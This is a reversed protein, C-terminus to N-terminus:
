PKIGEVRFDRWGCGHLQGEGVHVVKFGIAAVEKACVPGTWGSKHQMLEGYEPNVRNRYPYFAEILWDINDKGERGEQYWRFCGLVCPGEVIIKGGTRLLQFQWRLFDRADELFFHEIVHSSMIEAFYDHPLLEVINEIMMVVDTQLHRDWEQIGCYVKADLNIHEEKPAIGCGLNLKPTTQCKKVIPCEGGSYEARRCVECVPTVVM